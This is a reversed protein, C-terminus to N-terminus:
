RKEYAEIVSDCFASGSSSLCYTEPSTSFAFGRNVLYELAKTWNQFKLAKCIATYEDNEDLESLHKSSLGTHIDSLQYLGRGSMEFHRALVLLISQTKLAHEDAEESDPDSINDIYFFEGKVHHVLKKGILSYLLEFEQFYRFIYTYDKDEILESKINHYYLKNIVKGQTFRNYIRTTINQNLQQFNLISSKSYANDGLM